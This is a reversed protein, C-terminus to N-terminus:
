CLSSQIEAQRPAPDGSAQAGDALTATCYWHGAHPVCKVQEPPPCRDPDFLRGHAAAHEAQARTMGDLVLEDASWTSLLFGCGITAMAVIATVARNRSTASPV